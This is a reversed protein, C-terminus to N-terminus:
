HHNIKQVIYINENELEKQTIVVHEGKKLPKGDNSKTNLFIISGNINIKVQGVEQEKISKMLEGVKGELVLTNHQELSPIPTKKLYDIAIDDLIYGNLDTGITEFIKMKFRARDTYIEEFKFNKAVTQLAESFKAGFLDNLTKQKSTPACGITQAVEIILDKNRNIRVFFVAKINASINDQCIIGEKGSLNVEIRKISIDIEEVQHLIPIVLIGSDLVVKAGGFGTRVLAKGQPVKHHAFYVFIIYGVITLLIIGIVVLVITEHM